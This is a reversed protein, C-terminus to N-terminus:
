TRQSGRLISLVWVAGVLDLIVASTTLFRGWYTSLLQNLYNTDRFMFFTIIIPPLAIM